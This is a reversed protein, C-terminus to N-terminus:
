LYQGDRKEKPPEKADKLSELFSLADVVKEAKKKNTIKQVFFALYATVIQGIITGLAIQLVLTM